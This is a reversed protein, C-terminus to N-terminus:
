FKHVYIMCLQFNYMNGNYNRGCLSIVFVAPKVPQCCSRHDLSDYGM